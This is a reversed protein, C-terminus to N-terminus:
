YHQYLAIASANDALVELVYRRHPVNAIVADVLTRALGRGRHEPVVGTGSNYIRDGDRCTLVFGVLRDGDYAGFSAEASYGRRRQMNSLSEATMAMPVAYDSFAANFAAALEAMGVGALTRIDM